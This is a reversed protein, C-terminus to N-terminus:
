CEAARVEYASPSDIGLADRVSAKAAERMQWHLSPHDGNAAVSVHLSHGRKQMATVADAGRQSLFHSYDTPGFVLRTDIDREALDQLLLHPVMMIKARGMLKWLWYPAVTRVVPKMRAGFAIPADASTSSEAEPDDSDTSANPAMPLSAGDLRREDVILPNRLRWMLTNIMVLSPDSLASEAVAYAATWAGSCVGAHVQRAGSDDTRVAYDIVEVADRRASKSHLPEFDGNVDIPDTEGVGHRDFRITRVGHAALELAVEVWLRGPGTRVDCATSHAVLTRTPSQCSTEWTQIGSDTEGLRTEVRMSNSAVFTASNRPTVDVDVVAQGFRASLWETVRDIAAMPIEVYFSDPQVFPIMEGASIVEAGADALEEIARSDLDTDRAAVLVRDAGITRVLDPSVRMQSLQSATSRHWSAGVIHLASDVESSEHFAFGYLTRASRIYTRGRLVPDWMVFAAIDSSIASSQAALLAGARLGVVAVSEIGHSRMHEVASSVSEVMEYAADQAIQDGWSEGTHAYDFRLSAIGRLALRDALLKLGRTTDGQEKALPPCIVVGGRVKRDAPLQFVGFLPRREDGFFTRIPRNQHGARVTVKTM